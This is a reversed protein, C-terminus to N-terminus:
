SSRDNGWYVDKNAARWALSKCLDSPGFQPLLGMPVKFMGGILCKKDMYPYIQPFPEM